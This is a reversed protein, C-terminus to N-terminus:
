EGIKTILHRIVDGSILALRDFEKIAKDDETEVNILYYYGNKFKKIEYALERQGIEKFDTVKGGNSTLINEFDKAVKKIEEEALTPKVIFMIEYNRM